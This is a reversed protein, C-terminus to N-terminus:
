SEITNKLQSELESRENLMLEQRKQPDVMVIPRLLQQLKHDNKQMLTLEVKQMLELILRIFDRKKTQHILLPSSLSKIYIKTKKSLVSFIDYSDKPIFLMALIGKLM